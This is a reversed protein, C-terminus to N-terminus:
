PNISHSTIKHNGTKEFAVKLVYSNVVFAAIIRMLFVIILLISAYIAVENFSFEQLFVFTTLARDYDLFLVIFPGVLGIGVIDLIGTIIFSFILLPIHKKSDGFFFIIRHFHSVYKKLNM